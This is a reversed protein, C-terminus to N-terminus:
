IKVDILEKINEILVSIDFPKEIFRTIGISLAADKITKDASAFLIKAKKEYILIEKSAEIGDKVPLRHDMIIIDPKLQFDVFMKVAEEGNRAVGLITYGYYSLIKEYLSQLSPDDEVIFVSKIQM